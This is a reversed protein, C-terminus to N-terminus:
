RKAMWFNYFNPAPWPYQITYAAIDLFGWSYLLSKCKVFHKGYNFLEIIVQQSASITKTGGELVDLESGDVDIKIATAKIDLDDLAKIKVLQRPLEKSKFRDRDSACELVKLHGGAIDQGVVLYGPRSIKGVALKLTQINALKNLSVNRCLADYNKSEPEIAITPIGKKAAYVAFRGECAGLDLFKDSPTLTDIFDFIEPEIKECEQAYRNLASSDTSLLLEIGRITKKLKM